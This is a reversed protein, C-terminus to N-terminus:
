MKGPMGPVPGSGGRRTGRGKRGRRRATKGVPSKSSSNKTGKRMKAADKMANGLKYGPKHKNQNYVRKVLDTWESM